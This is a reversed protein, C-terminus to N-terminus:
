AAARDAAELSAPAPQLRWYRFGTAAGALVILQLSFMLAQVNSLRELPIIALACVLIISALVAEERDFVRTRFGAVLLLLLSMLPLAYLPWPFGRYRADFVLLLAMAAGGFLFAIRLASLWRLAPRIDARGAATLV